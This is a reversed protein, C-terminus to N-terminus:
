ELGRDEPIRLFYDLPKTGDGPHQYLETM